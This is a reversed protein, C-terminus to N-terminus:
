PSTTVLHKNSAGLISLLSQMRETASLSAATEGVDGTIIADIIKGAEREGMGLLIPRAEDAPMALLLEAGSAPPLGGYLKAM